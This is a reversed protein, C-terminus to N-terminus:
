NRGEPESVANGEITLPQNQESENIPLVKIGSGAADGDGAEIVITMLSAGGTDIATAQKQHLYPALAQQASMIIRLCEALNAGGKNQESPEGGLETQLQAPTMQAIEALGLLPSRYRTLIFRSWEETSKNRSGAPRGPGRKEAALEGVGDADIPEAGFLSGQAPAAPEISGGELAASAGAAFGAPDFSSPVDSM